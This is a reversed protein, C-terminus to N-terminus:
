HQWQSGQAILTAGAIFPRYSGIHGPGCSPEFTSWACYNLSPGLICMAARANNMPDFLWEKSLIGCQGIHASNIQWLGIDVTGAALGVNPASVISPDGSSDEAISLATMVIAVQPSAGAAEILQFRQVDSVRGSTVPALPIDGATGPDSTFPVDVPLAIDGTPTTTSSGSGSIWWPSWPQVTFGVWFMLFIGFVAGAATAIWGM